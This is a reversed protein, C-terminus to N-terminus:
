GRLALIDVLGDGPENLVELRSAHKLVSQYNPAALKAASNVALTAKGMLVIAAIMVRAAERHPHRTATGFSPHNVALGVIKRVVDRFVWNMHAIEMCRYQMKEADMVVTEAMLKLAQFLAERADLVGFDHLRQQCLRPPDFRSDPPLRQKRLKSDQAFQTRSKARSPRNSRSTGLKGDDIDKRSPEGM